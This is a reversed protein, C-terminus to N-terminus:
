VYSCQMMAFEIKERECVCVGAVCLLGVLALLLLKRKM